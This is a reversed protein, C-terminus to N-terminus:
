CVEISGLAYRLREDAGAIGLAIRPQGDLDAMAISLTYTGVSLDKPLHFVSTFAYEEGRVWGTPDFGRDLESFMDKGDPGILYLKLMHRKHLRAVNVNEWKQQVLM